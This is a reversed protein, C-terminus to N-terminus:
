IPAFEGFLKQAVELYARRADDRTVYSGIYRSKGDFGIEAIWKGNTKNWYVGHIGSKNDRRMGRNRNNESLSAVRLNSLRNDTKDRNFHDITAPPLAGHVMLWAIRHAYYNAGGLSVTVYGNSADLHGAPKGAYRGNWKPSRDDRWKRVFAGTEPDYDLAKHALEYLSLSDDAM